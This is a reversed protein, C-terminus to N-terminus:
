RINDYKISLSVYKLDTIYYCQFKYNTEKYKFYLFM